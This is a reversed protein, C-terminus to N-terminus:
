PKFFEEYIARGAHASDWYACVTMLGDAQRDGLALLSEPGLSVMASARPILSKIAEGIWHARGGKYGRIDSSVTLIIDRPLESRDPMGQPTNVIIAKIGLLRALEKAGHSTNDDTIAVIAEPKKAPRSGNVKISCTM